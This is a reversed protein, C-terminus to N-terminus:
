VFINCTTFTYSYWPAERFSILFQLVSYTVNLDPVIALLSQNCYHVAQSQQILLILDSERYGECRDASGQYIGTNQYDSPKIVYVQNSYKNNTILYQFNHIAKDAAFINHEFIFFIFMNLIQSFIFSWDKDKNWWWM